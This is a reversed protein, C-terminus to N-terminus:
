ASDKAHIKVRHWATMLYGPFNYIPAATEPQGNNQADFARVALERDGAKLEIEARWHVWSWPSASERKIDAQKWTKGGDGSVEVKTVRSATYIAYGTVATKGSKVTANEIPQLIVSNLPMDNVFPAKSFDAKEKIVDPPFLKYEKQQIHNDSPQDQAVISAIWKPSRVGAYGPTVLRLPFGHEPTLREGNMSWALITESAMAKRMPISVGYKFREREEEIDDHCAFAVHAKEGMSAKKLVDTLSVGAWEANGIAGVQWADGSVHKYESMDARRNGACQMVATVFRKPLMELDKIGFEMSGIKLKYTETSLKPMTGHNRVYFDAQPTIFSALRSPRPEFNLPTKRHVIM